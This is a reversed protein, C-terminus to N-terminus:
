GCTTGRSAVDVPDLAAKGVVELGAVHHMHAPHDAVLVAAEDAPRQALHGFHLAGEHRHVHVGAAHQRHLAAEAILFRDEVAGRQGLALGAGAELGEDIGRRQVAAEGGGRDDDVRRDLHVRGLAQPRRLVGAAFVIARRRHAGPDLLAPVQHGDADGLFDAHLRHGSIGFAKADVVPM